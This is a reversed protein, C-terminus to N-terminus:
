ATPAAYRRAALISLVSGLAAYAACFVAIEAVSWHWDFMWGLIPPAAASSFVMLATM